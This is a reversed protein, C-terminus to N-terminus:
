RYDEYEEYETIHPINEFNSTPSMSMIDIVMFISDENDHIFTYAKKIIAAEQNNETAYFIMWDIIDEEKYQSMGTVLTNYLQFATRSTIDIIEGAYAIEVEGIWKECEITDRPIHDIAILYSCGMNM